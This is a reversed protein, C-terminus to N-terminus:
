IMQLLEIRNNFPDLFTFRIREPIVIEDRTKVGNLELYERAVKVDEVEFAPHRKSDANMEGETGIHLEVDGAKFWLGGNHILETPKPIEALKLIDGYFKRAENEKGIPICIQLHDFRKVKIM